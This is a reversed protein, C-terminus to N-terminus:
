FNSFVVLEGVPYRGNWGCPFGDELYVNLIRQWIAPFHQNAYCNLLIRMDRHMLEILLCAGSTEWKVDAGSFNKAELNFYANKKLNYDIFRSWEFDAPFISPSDSVTQWEDFLDFSDDTAFKRAAVVDTLILEGSSQGRYNSQYYSGRGLFDVLPKAAILLDSWNNIM